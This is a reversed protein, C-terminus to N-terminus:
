PHSLVPLQTSAFMLPAAESILWCCQALWSRGVVKLPWAVLLLLLLLLLPVLLLV